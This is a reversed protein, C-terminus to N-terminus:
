PSGSFGPVKRSSPPWASRRASPPHGRFRRSPLPASPGTLGPVNRPLGYDGQDVNASFSESHTARYRPARRDGDPSASDRANQRRRGMLICPQRPRSELQFLNLGESGPKSSVQNQVPPSCPLAVSGTPSRMSPDANGVPIDMAAIFSARSRLKRSIRSHLSAACRRRNLVPTM